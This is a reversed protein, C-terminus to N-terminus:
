SKGIGARASLLRLLFVEIARNRPGIAALERVPRLKLCPLIIEDRAGADRGCLPRCQFM